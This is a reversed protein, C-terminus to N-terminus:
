ALLNTRFSLDRIIGTAVAIKESADKLRVVAESARAALQAAASGVTVVEGANAGVSEISKQMQLSDEVMSELTKTVLESTGTLDRTM